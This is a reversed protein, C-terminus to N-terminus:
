MAGGANPNYLASFNSQGKSMMPLDPLVPMMSAMKDIMAADANESDDVLDLCEECEDIKDIAERAKDAGGMLEVFKKAIKLQTATFGEQEEGESGGTLIEIVAVDSEPEGLAGHTPAGPNDSPISGMEETMMKAIFEQPTMKRPM